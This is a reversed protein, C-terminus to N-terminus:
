SRATAILAQIRRRATDSSFIRQLEKEFEAETELDREDTGVKGGAEMVSVPYLRDDHWAYFLPDTYDNLRPALLYFTYRFFAGGGPNLVSVLGAVLGDTRGKLEEAAEHLIELPPRQTIRVDLDALYDPMEIPM